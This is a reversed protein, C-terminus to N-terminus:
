LHTKSIRNCTNYRKCVSSLIRMRGGRLQKKLKYFTNIGKVSQACLACESGKSCDFFACKTGLRYLTNSKLPVTFTHVSRGRESWLCFSDFCLAYFCTHIQVLDPQIQVIVSQNQVMVFVCLESQM